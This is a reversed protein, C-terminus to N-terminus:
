KKKKVIKTLRSSNTSRFEFFYLAEGDEKGKYIVLLVLCKIGESQIKKTCETIKLCDKQM